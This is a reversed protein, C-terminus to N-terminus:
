DRIPRSPRRQVSVLKLSLYLSFHVCPAGILQNVRIMEERKKKTAIRDNEREMWRREERGDAKGVDHEADFSWDRWSNFSFWFDYFDDVVDDPTSENGLRPVPTRVSWYAARKFADGFERYFDGVSTPMRIEPGDKSDYVLRRQPDSLVDHAHAIAKFLTDTDGAEPVNVRITDPHFRLCLERHAKRIEDTSAKVRKSLGLLAYLDDSGALGARTALAVDHASETKVEDEVVPAAIPVFENNNYLLVAGVNELASERPFGSLGLFSEAPCESSDEWDPLVVDFEVETPSMTLALLLSALACLSHRSITGFRSRSKQKADIAHRVTTTLTTLM